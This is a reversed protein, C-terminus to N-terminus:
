IFYRIRMRENVARATRMGLFDVLLGIARLKMECRGLVPSVIRITQHEVLAFVVKEILVVWETVEPTVHTPSVCNALAHQVPLM